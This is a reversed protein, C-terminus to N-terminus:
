PLALTCVSARMRLAAFVSVRSCVGKDMVHSIKYEFVQASELLNYYRADKVAIEGCVGGLQPNADLNHVLKTVARERPVTGVDLLQAAITIRARPLSSSKEYASPPPPARPTRVLVYEPKVQKCFASFFWLHSNLKGGNKEKMAFILQMPLFYERQSSHKSLQCSREFLHMTVDQSNHREQIMEKDFILLERSCFELM